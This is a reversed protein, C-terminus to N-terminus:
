IYVNDWKSFPRPTVTVAYKVNFLVSVCLSNGNELFIHTVVFFPATSISAHM